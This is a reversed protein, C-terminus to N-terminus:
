GPDGGPGGAPPDPEPEAIDDPWRLENMDGEWGTGEMALAEKPALQAVPEPEAPEPGEAAPRPVPESTASSPPPDAASM